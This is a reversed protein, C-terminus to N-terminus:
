VSKWNMHDEFLFHSRISRYILTHSHSDMGTTEWEVPWWYFLTYAGPLMDANFNFFIMSVSKRSRTSTGNDITTIFHCGCFWYRGLAM